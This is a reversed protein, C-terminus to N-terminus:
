KEDRKFIRKMREDFARMRPTVERERRELIAEVTELAMEGREVADARLRLYEAAAGAGVAKVLDLIAYHTIRRAENGAIQRPTEPM